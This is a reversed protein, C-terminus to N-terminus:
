DRKQMNLEEKSVGPAEGHVVAPHSCLGHQREPETPLRDASSAGAACGPVASAASVAPQSHSQSLIISWFLLTEQKIHKNLFLNM